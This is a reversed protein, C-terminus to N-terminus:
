HLFNASRYLDNLNFSKGGKLGNGILFGLKLDCAKYYYYSKRQSNYEIPADLAKMQNILDYLCRRSIDLKAALEDPSGTAKRRILADVRKMAELKELFTM